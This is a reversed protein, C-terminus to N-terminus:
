KTPVVPYDTAPETYKHSELNSYIMGNAGFTLSKADYGLVTLYATLMSSTQGTWCYSVVTASPDLNKYTEDALTFPQIRYAGTIHGYHEVDTLTWYNNIFYNAPTALVDANEIANFGGTLLADVREALIDAGESFSSEIVPVSFEASPTIDGPPAVWSANGIAADGINSMWPTALDARWGSMGWKLVKADAYGSLRLACVAHGATQGTYCVVLIPKTAGNAADLVTGLTANVAGEIHGADFDAQQRIDIIHYDDTGKSNVTGADTIWGDMVVDVDMNNTVMYDVLVDFKAAPTPTPDNDDDNDSCGSLAVASVMLVMMFYKLFKEM